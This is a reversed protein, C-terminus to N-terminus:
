KLSAVFVSGENTLTYQGAEDVTLQRNLTMGLGMATTSYRATYPALVEASSLNAGLLLSSAWLWHIIAARPARPNKVALHKHAM